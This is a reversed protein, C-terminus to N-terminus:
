IQEDTAGEVYALAGLVARKFLAAQKTDKGLEMYIDKVAHYIEESLEFASGDFFLNMGGSALHEAKIM